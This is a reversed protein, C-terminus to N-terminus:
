FANGLALSYMKQCNEYVQVMCDNLEYQLNQIQDITVAISKVPTLAKLLNHIEENEKEQMDSIIENVRKNRSMIGSLM